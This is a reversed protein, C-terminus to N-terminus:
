LYDETSLSAACVGQLHSFSLANTDGCIVESLANAEVVRDIYDYGHSCIAIQLYQVQQYIMLLRCIQYVKSLIDKCPDLIGSEGKGGQQNKLSWQQQEKKKGSRWVETHQAENEEFLDSESNWEIGCNQLVEVNQPKQVYVMNWLRKRSGWEGMSM